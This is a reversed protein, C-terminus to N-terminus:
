NKRTDANFKEVRTKILARIKINKPQPQQSQNNTHEISSFLETTCTENNIEPTITFSMKDGLDYTQSNLILKKESNNDQEMACFHIHMTVATFFIFFLQIFVM